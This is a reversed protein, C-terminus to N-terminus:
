IRLQFQPPPSHPPSGPNPESRLFESVPELTTDEIVPVAVVQFSVKEVKALDFPQAKCVEKVPKECNGKHNCCSTQKPTNACALCGSALAITSFVM